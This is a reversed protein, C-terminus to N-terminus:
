ITRFYERYQFIKGKACNAKYDFIKDRVGHLFYRDVRGLGAEFYLTLSM